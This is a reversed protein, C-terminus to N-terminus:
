PLTRKIKDIVRQAFMVGRLLLSDVAVGHRLLGIVVPRMMKDPSNRKMQGQAMEDFSMPTITVDELSELIDAGKRSFAAVASVGKEDGAYRKGWLDGIRIDASSKDYKYKCDSHCAPNLTLDGLFLRYFIDGQSRRSVFAGKRERLLDEPNSAGVTQPAESKNDLSMTWSDHWGFGFKNRWSAYTVPGIKKGVYRLYGTWAWMSPVCHCFFDVLVVHDTMKRRELMRRLSDIQCPTGVIVYKGGKKIRSFAEQTYSQIYKSGISEILSVEDSAVYHEARHKEADYRCAIVEYGRAMLQRCIEFGVGGSSCVQRVRPDESWVAWAALPPCPSALGTHLFACSGLCLGCDICKSPDTIHPAYFGDRDLGIDVIHTPCVASCVGCGYCDHIEGVNKM